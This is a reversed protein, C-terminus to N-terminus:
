ERIAIKVDGRCHGGTEDWFGCRTRIVVLPDWRESKELRVVDVVSAEGSFRRGRMERKFTSRYDTILIRALQLRWFDDLTWGSFVPHLGDRVAKAILYYAAQNYCINFEVANFHGTDDIYCSEGIAFDGSVTLLDPARTVVATRLYRCHPRYVRLVRALLETDTDYRVLQAATM